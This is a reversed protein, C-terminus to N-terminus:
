ITVDEYLAEPDPLDSERAFVVAAEVDSVSQEEIGQAVKTTLWKNKIAVEKFVPINDIDAFEKEKEKKSKYKQEDGEM